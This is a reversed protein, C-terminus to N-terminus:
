LSLLKMTTRVLCHQAHGVHLAQQQPQVHVAPQGTAQLAVQRQAVQSAQPVQIDRAQLHGVKVQLMYPAPMCQATQAAALQAACQACACSVSLCQKKLNIAQM